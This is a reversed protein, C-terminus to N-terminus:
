ATAPTDLSVPLEADGRYTLLMQLFGLSILLSGAGSLLEAIVEWSIANFLVVIAFASIALLVQQLALGTLARRVLKKDTDVKAVVQALFWWAFLAAVTSLTVAFEEIVFNSDLKLAGDALFQILTTLAGAAVLVFGTVITYRARIRSSQELEM